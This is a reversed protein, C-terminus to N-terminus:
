SEWFRVYTQSRRLPIILCTGKSSYTACTVGHQGKITAPLFSMLGRLNPPHIPHCLNPTGVVLNFGLDQDHELVHIVLIKESRAVSRQRM